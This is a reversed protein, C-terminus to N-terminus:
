AEAVGISKALRRTQARFAIALAGPQQCVAIVDQSAAHYVMAETVADRLSAARYLVRGRKDNVSWERTDDLMASLQEDTRRTSPKDVSENMSM